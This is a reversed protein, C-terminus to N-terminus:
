SLASASDKFSLSEFSAFMLTIFPVCTHVFGSLPPRHALRLLTM